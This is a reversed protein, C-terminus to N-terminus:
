WQLDNVSLCLCWRTPRKGLFYHKGAYRQSVSIDTYRAFVNLLSFEFCCYFCWWCCHLSSCRRRAVHVPSHKLNTVKNSILQFNKCLNLLFEASNHTVTRLNSSITPPIWKGM